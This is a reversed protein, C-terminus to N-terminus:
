TTTIKVEKVMIKMEFSHINTQMWNINQRINKPALYIVIHWVYCMNHELMPNLRIYYM